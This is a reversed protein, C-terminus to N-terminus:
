GGMRGRESKQGRVESRQYLQWAVVTKADVIEGESIMKEIREASLFIVELKEDDEPNPSEQESSLQAYFFHLQEDCYGPSSYAVGMSYLGTAKFGTEERLERDACDAPDEGSKMVGAVVEILEHEVPKRFQRVLVFRGDPLRPLVVCAGPHRVVERVARLGSDLEVDLVDLKLLRGDFVTKSSLTKEHM